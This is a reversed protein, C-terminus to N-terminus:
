HILYVNLSTVYYVVGLILLLIRTERMSVELSIHFLQTLHVTEAGDALRWKKFYFQSCGTFDPMCIVFFFHYHIVDIEFLTIKTFPKFMSLSM